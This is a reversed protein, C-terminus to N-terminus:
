PAKKRYLQAPRFAGTKMAGEVPELLDRDALRRRFSSKDLPRELLQECTLQLEGLTFQGPLFGFPLQLDDVESRTIRAAQEVLSAHDFALARDAVADKVLRWGLAEIRKGAEPRIDDAPVLARYVISVAWPARPDRKPGGVTTLQRLFPMELGLRERMVRQAADDLSADLDIRLVGGPLAWKGAYPAEARRALLVRLKGEILSMVAIEIRTFPMPYFNPMSGTSQTAM